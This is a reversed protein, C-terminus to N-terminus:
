LPSALGVITLVLCDQGASVEVITCLDVIYLFEVGVIRVVLPPIRCVIWVLVVVIDVIAVPEPSLFDSAVSLVM